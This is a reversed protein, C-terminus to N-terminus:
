RLANGNLEAGAGEVADEAADEAAEENPLEALLAAATPADARGKHHRMKGKLRTIQKELKETVADISAFIDPTREQARLLLGDLDIQVEITQWNRQTDHYLHAERASNFYRALRQLKKEAYERERDTFGASKGSYTVRM